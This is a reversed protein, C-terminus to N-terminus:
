DRSARVSAARANRGTDVLRKRVSRIRSISPRGHGSAVETQLAVMATSASAWIGARQQDTVRTVRIIRLTPRPRRPQRPRSLPRIRCSRHHDARRPPYRRPAPSSFAQWFSQPSSSASCSSARKRANRGAGSVRHRAGDREFVKPDSRRPTYRAQRDRQSARCVRPSTM